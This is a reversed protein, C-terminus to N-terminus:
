EPDTSRGTFDMYSIPDADTPRELSIHFLDGVDIPPAYEATSARMRFTVSEPDLQGPIQNNAFGWAMTLPDILLLDREGPLTDVGQTVTLSWDQDLNTVTVTYLPRDM